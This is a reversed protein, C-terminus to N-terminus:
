SASHQLQLPTLSLTGRVLPVVGSILRRLARRRHLVEHRRLPVPHSPHIAKNKPSRLLFAFRDTPPPRHFRIRFGRGWTPIFPPQQAWEGVAGEELSISMAPSSVASLCSPTPGRTRLAGRLRACRAFCCCPCGAIPGDVGVTKAEPPLAVGIKTDVGPKVFRPNTQCEDNLDIEDYGDGIAERGKVSSLTM